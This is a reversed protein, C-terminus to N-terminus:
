NLNTFERIKNAKMKRHNELNAEMKKLSISMSKKLNNTLQSNSMKIWAKMILISVKSKRKDLIGRM